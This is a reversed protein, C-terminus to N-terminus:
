QSVYLIADLRDLGVVNPFTLAERGKKGKNKERDKRREWGESGERWDERNKRECDPPHSTTALVVM